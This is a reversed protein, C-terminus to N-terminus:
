GAVKKRAKVLADWASQLDEIHTRGRQENQVWRVVVADTINSVNGTVNVVKGCDEVIYADNNPFIHLTAM